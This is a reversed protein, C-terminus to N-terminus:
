NITAIKLWDASNPNPSVSWRGTASGANQCIYLFGGYEYLSGRVPYSSLGNNWPNTFVGPTMDSANFIKKSLDIKLLRPPNNSTGPMGMYVQISPNTAVDTKLVTQSNTGVWYEGNDVYVIGLVINLGNSSSNRVDDRFAAWQMKKGAIITYKDEFGGGGSGTKGIKKDALLTSVGKDSTYVVSVTGVAETGSDWSLKMGPGFDGTGGFAATKDVGDVLIKFKGAPLFAGNLHSVTTINGQQVIWIGLIPAPEPSAFSMLVAGTIDILVITLAVLLITGIVPSM